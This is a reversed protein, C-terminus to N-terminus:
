HRTDEGRLIQILLRHSGAKFDTNFAHQKGTELDMGCTHGGNTSQIERWNCDLQCALINLENAMINM